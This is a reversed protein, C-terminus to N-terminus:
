RPVLYRLLLVDDEALATALQMGVPEIPPGTTIRGATGSTVLPSVTLRLEDVLGATFLAGTLTPGGECDIRRLGQDALARVAATLDVTGEGVVVVEAGADAWAHRTEVPTAACTFVITPTRAETIVPADAPLSHGTTVVATPPVPRLGHRRRREATKADPHVGRFGEVMATTAGVLLVDALDSGLRLVVRDPANSLEQARGGVQVAGDASSVFNVALWASDAPYSYLRELDATDLTRAHDAPWILHM